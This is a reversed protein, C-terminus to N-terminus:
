RPRPDLVDRISRVLERGLYPKQLFGDPSEAGTIRRTTSEADFGSTLVIRVDSDLRRLERIIQKSGPGPMTLDLLVVKAERAHAAFLEIAEEGREALLVRFGANELVRRAVNRVGPEDDAVIVLERGTYAVEETRPKALSVAPLHSAPFYIWFTSGAGSKSQVSLAGRHGRVIGLTAALGLGRGTEKSSFFPDFIRPLTAEDMGQGDDSVELRVYAGPEAEDPFMTGDLLERDCELADVSVSIRGQADGIAEGANTILNMIVQRLQTVDVEVSPLNPAFSRALEVRKPVSVELLQVMDRVVEGLDVPQVQFRGSGSYALLQSCLDAARRGAEVVEELLVRPPTGEEIHGRALDANGLISVLLNNFDHAIGGALVGLSELKQAHLMQRELKAREEEARKRESVDVCCGVARNFSGAADYQAVASVLVDFVEGQKTVFQHPTERSWGEEVIGQIDEHARARSEDTMFDDVPRGLVEERRYGMRELWYDNVDAIFWSSDVSHLMMPSLNYLSRFRAESVRLAEEARRKGTVDRFSWVRGATNGNRVLPASFREFVRGDRFHLVDLEEVESRYLEQVRSAFSQPDVLQELVYAVMEEDNGRILLEDPIGWLEAFRRNSTVVKGNEDVVLIGDATSELVARFYDAGSTM